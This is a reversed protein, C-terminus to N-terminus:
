DASCGAIAFKRLCCLMGIALWYLAIPPGSELFDVFMFITLLAALCGAIWILLERQWGAPTQRLMNALLHITTVLLGLFALLLPFGGQVLLKLFTNDTVMLSNNPGLEAQPDFNAFQDYQLNGYADAQAGAEFLHPGGVTGLGLGFPNAVVHRFVMPWYSLRVEMSESSTAAESLSASAMFTQTVYFLVVCAGLALVCLTAKMKDKLWLTVLAGILLALWTTRSYTLVVCLLTGVIAASRCLRGSLRNGLNSFNLLLLFIAVLWGGFAPRSAFTSVVAMDDFRGMRLSVDGGSTRYPVDFLTFYQLIGYAVTVLGVFALLRVLRQVDAASELANAAVVILAPYLLLFRLQLAGRMVDPATFAALTATLAFLALWYVPANVYWSRRRLFHNGALSAILMVMLVDKGVAVL